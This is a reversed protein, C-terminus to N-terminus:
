PKRTLTSWGFGACGKELDARDIGQEPVAAAAEATAQNFATTCYSFSDSAPELWVVRGFGTGCGEGGTTELIAVNQANDHSVITQLCFGNWTTATITEDGFASTWAGVVEITDDTTTATSDDCGPAGVAVAVMGAMTMMVKM